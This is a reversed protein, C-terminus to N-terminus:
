AARGCDQPHAMCDRMMNSVKVQLRASVAKDWEQAVDTGASPLAMLRDFISMTKSMALLAEIEPIPTAEAFHNAREQVMSALYVAAWSLGFALSHLNHSLVHCKRTM